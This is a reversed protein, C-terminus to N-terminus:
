LIKVAKGVRERDFKGCGFIGQPAPAPRREAWFVALTFASLFVMSSLDFKSLTRKRIGFM